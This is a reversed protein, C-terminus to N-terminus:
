AIEGQKNPSFHDVVACEHPPCDCEGHADPYLACWTCEPCETM